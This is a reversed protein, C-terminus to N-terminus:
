TFFFFRDDRLFKQVGNLFCNVSFQMCMCAGPVVTHLKRYYYQTIELDFSQVTMLYKANELM